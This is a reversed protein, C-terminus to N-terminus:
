PKVEPGRILEVKLNTADGFPLCRPIDHKLARIDAKVNGDNKSGDHLDVDFTLEYTVRVTATRTPKTTSM